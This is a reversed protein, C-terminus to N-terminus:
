ETRTRLKPFFIKNIATKNVQKHDQGEPIKERLDEEKMDVETEEEKIIEEITIVEEEEM